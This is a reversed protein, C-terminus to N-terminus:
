PRSTGEVTVTGGVKVCADTGPLQVFGAGFGTCAKARGASQSKTAPPSAVAKAKVNPAVLTQAWVAASMAMLAVTGLLIWGAGVFVGQLPHAIDHRESRRMTM